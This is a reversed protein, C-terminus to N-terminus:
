LCTIEKKQVNNLRAFEGFYHRAARDYEMAAEEPTRFTGLSVEKGNAHIRAAWGAPSHQRVGKLGTRSHCRKNQRNQAVTAWRLNRRRNDLGNGNRHDIEYGARRGMIEHHMQAKANEGRRRGLRRKAYAVGKRLQHHWTYRALKSYDKDDVLAFRGRGVPIRKMAEGLIGADSRPLDGLAAPATRLGDARPNAQDSTASAGETALGAPRSPIQENTTTHSPPGSIDTTEYAHFSRGSSVSEQRSGAGGPHGIRVCYFNQTRQSADASQHDAKTVFRNDTSRNVNNHTRQEM